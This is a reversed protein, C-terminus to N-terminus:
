GAALYYDLVLHEGSFDFYLYIGSEYVNGEDDSGEIYVGFELYTQGDMELETLDDFSSNSLQASFDEDKFLEILMEADMKDNNCYTKLDEIDRSLIANKLAEFDDPHHNVAEAEDSTTITTSTSSTTTTTTETSTCSLTLISLVFATVLIKQTSKM